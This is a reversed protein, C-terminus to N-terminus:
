KVCVKTLTIYSRQDKHRVTVTTKIVRLDREPGAPWPGLSEGEDQELTCEQIHESDGEGEWGRRWHIYGLSLKSLYQFLDCQVFYGM